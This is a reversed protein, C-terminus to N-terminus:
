VAGRESKLADLEERMRGLYEALSEGFVTMYGSLAGSTIDSFLDYLTHVDSLGTKIARAVSSDPEAHIDDILSNFHEIIHLSLKDFAEKMDRATYGKGGLTSSTTPRTPLASIRLARVNEDLIKETTM